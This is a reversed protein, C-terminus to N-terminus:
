VIQMHWSRLPTVRVLTYLALSGRSATERQFGMALLVKAIKHDLDSLFLFPIYSCVQGVLGFIGVLLILVLWSIRTPIVLPIKFIIIRLHFIDFLHYLASALQAAPCVRNFFHSCM